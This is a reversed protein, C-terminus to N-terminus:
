IYINGFQIGTGAIATGGSTVVKIPIEVETPPPDGGTKSYKRVKVINHVTGDSESFTYSSTNFFLLIAANIYFHYYM